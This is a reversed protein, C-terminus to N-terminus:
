TRGHSLPLTFFFTSGTGETSTFWMRGGYREVLLKAYFLGLGTGNPRLTVANKARFFKEFIKEQEAAPIGIGTDKISVEASSNELRLSLTISGGSKSYQIANELLVDLVIHADKRLATVAVDHEPLNLHLATNAKDLGSEKIVAIRKILETLSFIETKRAAGAEKETEAVELLQNVISIMTDTTRRVENIMSLDSVSFRSTNGSFGETAWRLRTLPTRLQHSTISIFDLKLKNEREISEYLKANEWATSFAGALSGLAARESKAYPKGSKKHGVALFGVAHTRGRLPAVIDGGLNEAISRVHEWSREEERSGFPAAIAFPEQNADLLTKSSVNHEAPIERPGAINGGSFSWIIWRKERESFFVASTSEVRLTNTMFEFLKQILADPSELTRITEDFRDVLRRFNV